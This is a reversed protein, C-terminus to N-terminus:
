RVYWHGSLSAGLGGLEIGAFPAGAWHYGLDASLALQPVAAFTM